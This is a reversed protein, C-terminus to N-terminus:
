IRCGAGGNAARDLCFSDDQSFPFTVDGGLVPGQLKQCAGVSSHDENRGFPANGDDVPDRQRLKVDISVRRTHIQKPIATVTTDTRQRDACLRVKQERSVRGRVPHDGVIDIRGAVGEQLFFIGDANCGLSREPEIVHDVHLNRCAAVNKVNAYVSLKLGRSHRSGGVANGALIVRITQNRGHIQRIYTRRRACVHM